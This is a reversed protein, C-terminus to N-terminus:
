YRIREMDELLVNQGCRDYPKTIGSKAHAAIRQGAELERMPRAEGVFKWNTSLAPMSLTKTKFVRHTNM